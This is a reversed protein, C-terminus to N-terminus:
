KYFLYNIKDVTYSKFNFSKIIDICNKTDKFSYGDVCHHHFEIVLQDIKDFIDKKLKPIVIYEEGEVDMKLLDIKKINLRRFLDNITIVNVKYLSTTDNKINIHDKFFSGSVNERTEYFIKKKNNDSLALNLFKFKGNKEKEIKNLSNFHKRTPDFGFSKLNYMRILFISFDADNGTGFDIIISNKDLKDVIKYCPNISIINYFREILWYYKKKIIEKIKNNM